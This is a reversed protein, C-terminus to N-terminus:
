GWFPSGYKSQFVDSLTKFLAKAVDLDRGCQVASDAILQSPLENSQVAAPRGLRRLAEPNSIYFISVRANDLVNCAMDIKEVSAQASLASNYDVDFSPGYKDYIDGYLRKTWSPPQFNDIDPPTFRPKVIGGPHFIEDDPLIKSPYLREFFVARLDVPLDTTIIRATLGFDNLERFRDVSFKASAARSAAYGGPVVVPGKINYVFDKLSSPDVRGSSSRRALSFDPYRDFLGILSDAFGQGIRVTAGDSRRVNVVLKGAKADLILQNFNDEVAEAIKDGLGMKDYEAFNGSRAVNALSPRASEQYVLVNGIYNADTAWRFMKFTYAEIQKLQDENFITQDGIKNASVKSTRSYPLNVLQEHFKDITFDSVKNTTVYDSIQDVSSGVVMLFLPGAKLIESEADPITLGKRSAYNSQEM